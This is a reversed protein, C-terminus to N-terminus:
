EKHEAEWAREIYYLEIFANSQELWGGSQPLINKENFLAVAALASRAM